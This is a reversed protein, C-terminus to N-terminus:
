KTSGTIYTSQDEPSLYALVTDKFQRFGIEFVNESARVLEARNIKIDRDEAREYQSCLIYLDFVDRAQIVARTGLAKIKQSIASEIPYHPIPFPLLKYTRM